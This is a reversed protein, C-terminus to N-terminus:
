PLLSWERLPYSDLPPIANAANNNTLSYLYGVVFLVQM